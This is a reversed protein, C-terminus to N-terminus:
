PSPRTRAPPSQGFDREFWGRREEPLKAWFRSWATMVEEHIVAHDWKGEMSPGTYTLHVLKKNIRQRNKQLHKCFDAGNWESLEDLYDVAYVDDRQGEPSCRFFDRLARAHLLFGEMLMNRTNRDARKYEVLVKDSIWKFQDISYAVTRAAEKAKPHM